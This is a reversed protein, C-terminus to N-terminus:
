YRQQLQRKIWADLSVRGPGWIFVLLVTILYPYPAQIALSTPSFVHQLHATGLAALMLFILPIAVLRSGLGVILLAGGVMELAAVFHAHFHAQPIGLTTFFQVTNEMHTWKDWGALVFQHGWTLRMYFLFVSPLSSGVKIIFRYLAAFLNLFVSDFM